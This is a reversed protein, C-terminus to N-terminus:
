GLVLSKTKSRRAKGELNTSGDPFHELNDEYKNHYVMSAVLAYIDKNEKYANIMNEDGTM